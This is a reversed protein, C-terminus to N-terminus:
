EVPTLPKPAIVLEKRQNFGSLLSQITELWDTLSCQQFAEYCITNEDLSRGRMRTEYLWDSWNHTMHQYQDFSKKILVLQESVLKEIDSENWSICIQLTRILSEKVKEQSEGNTLIQLRYYTLSDPVRASRLSGTVGYTKQEIERIQNHIFNNLLDKARNVLLRTPAASCPLALITQYRDPNDDIEVKVNQPPPFVMLPKISKTFSPFVPLGSMYDLVMDEIDSNQYNGCVIFTPHNFHSLMNKILARTGELSIQEIEELTSEKMFESDGWLLQQEVNQQQSQINHQENLLNQKISIIIRNFATEFGQSNLSREDTLRLCILQIAQELHKEHKVTTRLSLSSLTYDFSVDNIERSILYERYKRLSLGGAPSNAFAKFGVILSIDELSSQAFPIQDNTKLLILDIKTNPDQTKKFIVSVGNPLVVKKCNTNTHFTTENVGKNTPRQPLILESKVTEFPELAEQSFENVEEFVRKVKELCRHEEKTTVCITYLHPYQAPDLPRFLQAYRDQFKMYHKILLTLLLTKCVNDEIIIQDPFSHNQLHTQMLTDIISPHPNTYHGNLIAPIKKAEETLMSAMENPAVGYLALRRLLIYIAQFTEEEKGFPTHLTIRPELSQCSTGALLIPSSNVALGLIESNSDILDQLKLSFATKQLNQELKTILKTFSCEGRKHTPTPIEKYLVIGSINVQSETHEQFNGESKPSPEHASLYCKQAQDSPITNFLHLIYNHIEQECDRKGPKDGFEGIVFLTLNAPHYWKKYFDILRKQLDEPSCNTLSESLKRPFHCKFTPDPWIHHIFHTDEAREQETLRYHENAVIAREDSIKKIPFTAQCAFEYLLHIADKIKQLDTPINYIRYDTGDCFTTANSDAGPQCGYSKLAASIEEGTRTATGHFICHEILHAIDQDEESESLYGARVMLNLSVTGIEAGAIARHQFYINVGNNLVTTRLSPSAPITISSSEQHHIQKELVNLALHQLSPIEHNSSPPNNGNFIHEVLDQNLQIFSCRDQIMNNGYHFKIQKLRWCLYLGVSM